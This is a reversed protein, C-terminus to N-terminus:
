NRTDNSKENTPNAKWEIDYKELLERCFDRRVVRDFHIACPDNAYMDLDDLIAELLKDDDLVLASM